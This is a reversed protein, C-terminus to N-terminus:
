LALLRSTVWTQGSIWPELLDGIPRGRLDHHLRTHSMCRPM